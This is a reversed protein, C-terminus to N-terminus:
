WILGRSSQTNQLSALIEPDTVYYGKMIICVEGPIPYHLVLRQLDLLLIIDSGKNREYTPM